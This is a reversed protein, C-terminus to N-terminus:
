LQLKLQETIQIAEVAQRVDHVRLIDAGKMLSITNLVTTGNLTEDANTGLLRYIMSKRSVGVLIPMNFVKFEELHAMLRYNDELTKGFGFGPDIIIDNVGKQNLIDVKEAFYKFIENFLNDYQPNIQMSAPTGKMHMIIYPVNLEAMTDFMNPDMEGASIDNIIAAGYEEVCMRAIDARFTDISYILSDGFEGNLTKLAKALRAKEEEAPVEDAGPRSSYAGIDIITGGESIIQRAREIIETENEKRSNTYFSDPTVNLIGMVIPSHFEKLEGKINLTYAPQIM